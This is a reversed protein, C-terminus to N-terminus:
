VTISKLHKKSPKDSMQDLIVFTGNIDLAFNDIHLDLHETASKFRQLEKRVTPLQKIIALVTKDNTSQLLMDYIENANTDNIGYIHLYVSILGDLSVHNIEIDYLKFRLNGSIPKVLDMIIAYMNKPVSNQIIKRADYFNIIHKTNKNKMRVAYNYDLENDTIKLVKTPSVKYIHAFAGYVSDSLEIAAEYGFFKAIAYVEKTSLESKM